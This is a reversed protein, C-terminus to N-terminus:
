SKKITLLFLYFKQVSGTVSYTVVMKMRSEVLNKLGYNGLNVAFYYGSFVDLYTDLLTYLNSLYTEIHLRECM